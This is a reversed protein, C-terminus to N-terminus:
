ESLTGKTSPIAETMRADTEVAARLAQAVAKFAAEAIHHSNQGDLLAVNLTMRANMAFATFFERVLSVDTRGAFKLKEVGNVVGVACGLALILPVIWLLPWNQGHALATVLMAACNMVWPVSLDIGGGIIVITQGIAVIGIFSALTVLTAVHAPHAFGPSYLSVLVFLVLAAAYALLTPGASFRWRKM